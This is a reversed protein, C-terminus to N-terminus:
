EHQAPRYVLLIVGSSYTKTEVLKLPTNSGEGFLRKGSGLVVPYVLLNYQDILNNQLLVQALTGSGFVLVDQGAEQKLKAVEEAVNREILKSNNWELKKLTTSVVYKPLNNMRDAYGQEDTRGPWAAAFDEYTVRGLLLADVAFLESQKFEAIDDNWYPFSWENPAEVVGDLTMFESVIVKRM